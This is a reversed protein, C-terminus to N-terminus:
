YYIKLWSLGVAHGGPHMGFCFPHLSSMTFRSFWFPFLNRIKIRYLLHVTYNKHLILRQNMNILWVLHKLFKIYDSTWHNCISCIAMHKPYRIPWLRTFTLSIYLTISLLAVRSESIISERSVTDCKLRTCRQIWSKLYFGRNVTDFCYFILTINNSKTILGYRVTQKLSSDVSGASRGERSEPAMSLIVILDRSGPPPPDSM